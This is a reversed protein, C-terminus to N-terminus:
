RLFVQLSAPGARPKAPSSVPPVFTPTPPVLFRALRPRARQIRRLLVVGLLLVGGGELVALCIGIVTGMGEQDASHHEGPASHAWLVVLSILAIAGLLLRKRGQRRM